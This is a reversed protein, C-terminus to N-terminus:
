FKVTHAVLPLSGLNISSSPQEPVTRVTAIPSVRPEATMRGTRSFYWSGNRQNLGGARLPFNPGQLITM